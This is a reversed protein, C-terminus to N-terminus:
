VSLLVVTVDNNSVLSTRRLCLTGCSTGPSNLPSQFLETASPQFVGIPLLTTYYQTHPKRM